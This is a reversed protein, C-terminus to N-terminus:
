QAPPADTFDIRKFCAFVAEQEKEAYRLSTNPGGNSRMRHPDKSRTIRYEIELKELHRLMRGFRRVRGACKKEVSSEIERSGAVDM